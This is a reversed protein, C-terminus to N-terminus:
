SFKIYIRKLLIVVTMATFATTYVQEALTQLRRVQKAIAFTVDLHCSSNSRYCLYSLPRPFWWDLPVVHRFPVSLPPPPLRRGIPTSLPPLALLHKLSLCSVGESAKPTSYRYCFVRLMSAIVTSPHHAILSHSPRMDKTIILPIPLQYFLVYNGWGIITLTFSKRHSSSKM